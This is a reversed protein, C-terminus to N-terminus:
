SQPIDPRGSSPVTLFICSM